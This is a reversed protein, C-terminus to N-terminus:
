PRRPATAQLDYIKNRFVNQTTAGTMQIGTVVASAAAGSLGNITNSFFNQNGGDTFIASISNGNTVNSITNGSVNNNAFTNDSFGVYLKSTM